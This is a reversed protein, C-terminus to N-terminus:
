APQKNNALENLADNILQGDRYCYIFSNLAKDIIRYVSARSVMLKEAICVASKNYVYHEQLAEYQDGDLNALAASVDRILQRADAVVIMMNESSNGAGHSKPMGDFSPSKISGALHNIRIAKQLDKSLLQKALQVALKETEEDIM